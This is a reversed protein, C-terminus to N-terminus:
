SNKIFKCMYCIGLREVILVVSLFWAYLAIYPLFSGIVVSSWLDNIVVHSSIKISVYFFSIVSSAYPTIICFAMDISINKKLFFVIGSILFLAYFVTLYDYTYHGLTKFIYM